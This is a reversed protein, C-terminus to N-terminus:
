KYTGDELERWVESMGEALMGASIGRFGCREALRDGCLGHAYVGIRAVDEVPLRGAALGLLVGTLVDGAGGKAMGPNGSMNFYFRGQPTAVVSHAGKLVVYVQYRIAFISLKNLREFDNGSKGALREFEQWHPTLICRDHLLELMEPYVSLINLADADLITVGRWRQLLERLAEATDLAQGIAPGVAVADYRELAAVGTFREPSLDVDLVAEPVAVQMVGVGREPVHCHLVGVGSRVAAKGAMLAAGMMGYSGAVLLGRGNTGKHAFKSARPLLRRVEEATTYGWEPSVRDPRRGTMGEFIEEWVAEECPTLSRGSVLEYESMYCGADRMDDKMFISNKLRMTWSLRKLPSFYLFNM